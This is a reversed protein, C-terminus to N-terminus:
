SALVAMAAKQFLMLMTELVVAEVLTLHPMVVQQIEPAQAEMGAAVMGALEQQIHLEQLTAALLGVALM